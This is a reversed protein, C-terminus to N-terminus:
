LNIIGHRIIFKLIIKFLSTHINRASNMVEKFDTLYLLLFRMLTPISKTYNKTNFNTNSAFIVQRFSCFAEFLCM